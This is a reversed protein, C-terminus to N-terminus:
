LKGYLLYTILSKPLDLQPIKHEPILKILSCRCLNKLSNDMFKCPFVKLSHSNVVMALQKGTKSVTLCFSSKLAAEDHDFIHETSTVGNEIEIVSVKHKNRVYCRNSATCYKLATIKSDSPAHIAMTVIIYKVTLKEPDIALRTFNGGESLILLDYPRFNIGFECFTTFHDIPDDYGQKGLSFIKGFKNAAISFLLLQWEKTSSVLALITGNPSFSTSSTYGKFLPCEKLLSLSALHLHSKTNWFTLYNTKRISHYDTCISTALINDNTPLFKSTTVKASLIDCSGFILKSKQQFVVTDQLHVIEYVSITPKRPIEKYSFGYIAIQATDNSMAVCYIDIFDLEVSAVIQFDGIDDQPTSYQVGQASSNDPFHSSLQLLLLQSVPLLNSCSRSNYEENTCKLEICALYQGNCAFEAYHVRSTGLPQRLFVFPDEEGMRPRNMWEFYVGKCLGNIGNYLANPKTSVTNKKTKIM